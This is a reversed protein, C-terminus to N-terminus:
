QKNERPRYRRMWESRMAEDLQEPICSEGLAGDFLPTMELHSQITMVAEESGEYLICRPAGELGEAALFVTVNGCHTRVQYSSM